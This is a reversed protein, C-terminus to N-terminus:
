LGKAIDCIIRMKTADVVWFLKGAPLSNNNETAEHAAVNSHFNLLKHALLQFVEVLDTPQLDSHHCLQEVLEVNTLPEQKENMALLEAPSNPTFTM